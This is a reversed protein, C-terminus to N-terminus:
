LDARPQRPPVTVPESALADPSYQELLAFEVPGAKCQLPAVMAVIHALSHPKMEM